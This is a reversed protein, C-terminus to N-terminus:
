PLLMYLELLPRQDKILAINVTFDKNRKIFEKTGDLPDEDLFLGLRQAGPLTDNKRRRFPCSHPYGILREKIITHGAKDANTLPSEDQKYEVSIDMSGYVHM